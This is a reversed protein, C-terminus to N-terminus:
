LEIITIDHRAPLAVNLILTKGIRAELKRSNHAHGHVVIDPQLKEVIRELRKSGMEPWARPSEGELTAYTPAYHTLLIVKDAVSKLERLMVEIRKVRASYIERIGKIHAQQWRTPRDLVGRSGIIGLKVSGTDLLLYEDDLWRVKRTLARLKDEFGMYEENGFVGVITEVNCKSITVEEVLKINEVKGKYIIDGGWLMLQAERCDSEHKVLSSIYHRIYRPAHIDSVAM